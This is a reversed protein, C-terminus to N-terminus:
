VHVRAKKDRKYQWSVLRKLKDVADKATCKTVSHCWLCAIEYGAGQMGSKRSVDAYLDTLANEGSRLSLFIAVFIPDGSFLHATSTKVLEPYQLVGALATFRLDRLQEEVFEPKAWQCRMWQRATAEDVVERIHM